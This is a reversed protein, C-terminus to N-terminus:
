PPMSTPSTATSHRGCRAPASFAPLTEGFWAQLASAFDLGGHLFAALEAATDAHREGFFRGALVSERLSWSPEAAPASQELATASPGAITAEDAM